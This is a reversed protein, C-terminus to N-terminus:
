NMWEIRVEKGLRSNTKRGIRARTGKHGCTCRGSLVVYLTRFGQGTDGPREVRGMNRLRTAAGRTSRNSNGWKTLSQIDRSAERRKEINGILFARTHQFGPSKHIGRSGANVGTYLLIYSAPEERLSRTKGEAHKLVDSFEPRTGYPPGPLGVHLCAGGRLSRSVFEGKNSMVRKRM